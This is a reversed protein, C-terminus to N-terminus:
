LERRCVKRLLTTQTEESVFFARAKMTIASGFIGTPCHWCLAFGASPFPPGDPPEYHEFSMGDFRYLGTRSEVWLFGDKTQALAVISPPAGDKATWATHVFPEIRRDSAFALVPKESWFILLCAVLTCPWSRFSRIRTISLERSERNGLKSSCM